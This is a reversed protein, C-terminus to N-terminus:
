RLTGAYIQWALATQAVLNLIIFMREGFLYNEWHGIKQRQFGTNIILSASLLLMSIVLWYVYTPVGSGWVHSSWLYTLPVKWAFIAAGLGLWYNFWNAPRVTELLLGLLAAVATLGGILTLTSVDYVGAVISIVIMMLASSVAFGIWRIHNINAKLDQEYLKKYRTVTLAYSLASILMFAAIVYVLNLDFLHHTAPALVTSGAASSSLQDKALYGVTIPRSGSAHNGIVLIVIAQIALLAAVFLNFRELERVQIKKRGFSLSNLLNM